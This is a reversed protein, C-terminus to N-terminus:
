GEYREFVECDVEALEDGVEAGTVKCLKKPHYDFHVCNYCCTIQSLPKPKVGEDLLGKSYIEFEKQCESPESEGIDDYPEIDFNNDM